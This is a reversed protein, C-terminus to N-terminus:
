LQRLVHEGSVLMYSSPFTACAATQKAKVTAPVSDVGFSRVTFCSAFRRIVTSNTTLEDHVAKVDQVVVLALKYINKALQQPADPPEDLM